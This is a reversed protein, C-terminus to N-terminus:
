GSIGSYYMRIQWQRLPLIFNLIAREHVQDYEVESMSYSYPIIRSHSIMLAKLNKVM